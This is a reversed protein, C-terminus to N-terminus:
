KSKRLPLHLLSLLISYKNKHISVLGCFRHLEKDEFIYLRVTAIKIVMVFDNIIDIIVSQECKFVPYVVLQLQHASTKEGNVHNNILLNKFSSHSNTVM